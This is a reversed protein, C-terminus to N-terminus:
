NMIRKEREMSFHMNAQQNPIDSDWRVQAGALDLKYQSIEIALTMLVQGICVAQM